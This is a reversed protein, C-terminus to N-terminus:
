RRATESKSYKDKYLNYMLYKENFTFPKEYPYYNIQLRFSHTLDTKFQATANSKLVEIDIMHTTSIKELILALCVYYVRYPKLIPNKIYLKIYPKFM